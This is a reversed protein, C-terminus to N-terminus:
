FPIKTIEQKNSWKKTRYERSKKVYELFEKNGNNNVKQGFQASFHKNLVLVRYNRYGLERLKYNYDESECDGYYNEDFRGAERIKNVAIFMVGDTWTNEQIEYKYKKIFNKRKFLPFRKILSKGKYHSRLGLVGCKLKECKYIRIFNKIWYDDFIMQDDHIFCFYDDDLIEDIVMNLSASINYKNDSYKKIVNESNIIWDDFDSFSSASNNVLIIKYIINSIKCQHILRRVCNKIIEQRDKM